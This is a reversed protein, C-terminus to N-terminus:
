RCHVRITDRAKAEEAEIQETTLTREEGQNNKISIQAGSQLARLNEKARQCYEPNPLVQKPKVDVPTFENGVRPVNEPPVAGEDGSVQRVLSSGTEIVEYAVGQPPPRDSHVPNGRENLWRYHVNQSRATATTFVLVIGVIVIILQRNLFAVDCGM